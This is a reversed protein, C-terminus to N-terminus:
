AGAKLAKATPRWTVRGAKTVTRRVLGSGVLSMLASWTWTYGKVAAKVDAETTGAKGAAVVVKLVAQRMNKRTTKKTTKAVPCRADDTPEHHDHADHAGNTVVVM